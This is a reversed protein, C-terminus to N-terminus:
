RAGHGPVFVSVGGHFGAGCRPGGVARLQVAGVVEPPISLCRLRVPVRTLDLQQLESIYSSAHRHGVGADGAGLGAPDM